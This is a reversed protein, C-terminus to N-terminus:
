AATLKKTIYPVVFPLINADINQLNRIMQTIQTNKRLSMRANRCNIKRNLARQESISIPKYRLYGYNNYLYDPGQILPPIATRKPIYEWNIRHNPESLKKPMVVRKTRDIRPATSPKGYVRKEQVFSVTKKEKPQTQEAASEVDADESFSMIPLPLQSRIRKPRRKISSSDPTLLNSPTTSQTPQTPLPQERGPQDESSTSASSTESSSQGPAVDLTPTDPALLWTKNQDDALINSWIIDIFMEKAAKGLKSLKPDLDEPHQRTFNKIHKLKISNSLNKWVEQMQTSKKALSKWIQSLTKDKYRKPSRLHQEQREKFQGPSGGFEAM